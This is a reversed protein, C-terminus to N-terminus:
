FIDLDPKQALRKSFYVKVSTYHFSKWSKLLRRQFNFYVNGCLFQLKLNLKSHQLCSLRVCFTATFEVDTFYQNNIAWASMCTILLFIRNAIAKLMFLTPFCSDKKICKPFGLNNARNFAHQLPKMLVFCSKRQGLQGPLFLFTAALM